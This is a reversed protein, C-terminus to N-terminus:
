FLARVQSGETIASSTPSSGVLSVVSVISKCLRLDAIGSEGILTVRVCGFAVVLQAIQSYLTATHTGVM